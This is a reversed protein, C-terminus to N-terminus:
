VGSPTLADGRDNYARPRKGKVGARPELGQGRGDSEPDSGRVLGPFGCSVIGNRSPSFINEPNGCAGRLDLGGTDVDRPNSGRSYAEAEIKASLKFCKWHYIVLISVVLFIQLRLMSVSIHSISSIDAFIEIDKSM